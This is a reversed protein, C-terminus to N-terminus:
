PHTLRWCMALLRDLFALPEAIDDADVYGFAEAVKVAAAIEDASGQAVRWLHLRDRGKRCRGERLNLPVSAAARRIQSALNGDHQAIKDLLSRLSRLLALSVDFADFPM